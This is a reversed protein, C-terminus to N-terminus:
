NILRFCPSLPIKLFFSPFPFPFYSSCVEKTLTSVEEKFGDVAKSLREVQHDIHSDIVCEACIALKETHCYTNIESLPHKECHVASPKMKGKLAEDMSVFEHGATTKGRKHARQCGACLFQACQVSFSTADEEGDECIECKIENPNMRNTSSASSTTATALVACTFLNVPLTSASLPPTTATVSAQKGKRGRRKEVVPAAPVAPVAPTLIEFVARCAPCTFPLKGRVALHFPQNFSLFFLCSFFQV